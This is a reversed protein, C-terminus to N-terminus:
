CRTVARRGRSKNTYFAGFNVLAKGRSPRLVLLESRLTKRRTIPLLGLFGGTSDVGIRRKSLGRREFSLLMMPGLFDALLEEGDDFGALFFFSGLAGFFFLDAYM